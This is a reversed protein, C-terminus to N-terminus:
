MSRIRSPAKAVRLLDSRGDGGEGGRLRAIHVTGLDEDIAAYENFGSHLYRQVSL